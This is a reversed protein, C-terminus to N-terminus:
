NNLYIINKGASYEKVIDEESDISKENSISIYRNLFQDYFKLGTNNRLDFLFYKETKIYENVKIDANVKYVITNSSKNM